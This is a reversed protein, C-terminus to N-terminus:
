RSVIVDRGGSTTGAFSCRVTNETFYSFGGTLFLTVTRVQGATLSTSAALYTELNPYGDEVCRARLTFSGVDQSTTLGTITLTANEYRTVSFFSYTARLSEVLTVSIARTEGAVLDGEVSHADYGAATTIISFPGAPISATFNGDFSGIANFRTGMVLSRPNATAPTITVNVTATPESITGCASLVAAAVLVILARQFGAM